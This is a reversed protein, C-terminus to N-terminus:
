RGRSRFCVLWTTRTNSQPLNILLTADRPQSFCPRFSLAWGLCGTAVVGLVGLSSISGMHSRSTPFVTKPSLDQRAGEGVSRSQLDWDKVSRPVVCCEAVRGFSLESAWPLFALPVCIYCVHIYIYTHSYTHMCIYINVVCKDTYM